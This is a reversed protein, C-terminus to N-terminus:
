KMTSNKLKIYKTKYKLYKHYQNNKLYGGKEMIPEDIYKDINIKTFNEFSGFPSEGVIFLSGDDYIIMMYKEYLYIKEPYVSYLPLSIDVLRNSLETLNFICNKMKESYAYLKNTTTLIMACEENCKIEKVNNTIFKKNEIVGDEYIQIMYLENDMTIVFFNPGYYKVISKIKLDMKLLVLNYDPYYAIIIRGDNTLFIYSFYILIDTIKTRIGLKKEIDIKEPKTSNLSENFKGVYYLEGNTTCM